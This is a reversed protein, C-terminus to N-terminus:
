GTINNLIGTFYIAAKGTLRDCIDDDVDQNAAAIKAKLADIAEAKNVRKAGGTSGSSKGGGSAVTKKVYVGARILVMRVGNPTKDFQDAVEKVIEMTNEPTPEREEYAAIVEQKLEDTWENEAM